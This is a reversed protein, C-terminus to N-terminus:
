VFAINGLKEELQIRRRREDYLEMWLDAIREKAIKLSKELDKIKQEPTLQNYNIPKLQNYHQLASDNEDEYFEEFSM